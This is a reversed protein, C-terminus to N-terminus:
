LGAGDQHDGPLQADMAEHSSASFFRSAHGFLCPRHGFDRRSTESVSIVDLVEFNSLGEVDEKENLDKRRRTLVLKERM